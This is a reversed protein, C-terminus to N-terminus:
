ENTCINQKFTEITAKMFSNVNCFMEGAFRKVSIICGCVCMTYVCICYNVLHCSECPEDAYSTNFLVEGSGPRYM